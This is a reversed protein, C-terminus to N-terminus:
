KEDKKQTFKYGSEGGTKHRGEANRRSDRRAEFGRKVQMEIALQNNKITERTM